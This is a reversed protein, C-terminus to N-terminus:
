CGEMGASQQAHGASWLQGMLVHAGKTIFDIVELLLM